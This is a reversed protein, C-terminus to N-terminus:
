YTPPALEDGHRTGNDHSGTGTNVHQCQGGSAYATWLSVEFSCFFNSNPACRPVPPAPLHPSVFSTSRILRAGQAYMDDRCTFLAQTLPEFPPRLSQVLQMHLLELSNSNSFIPLLDASTALLQHASIGDQAPVSSRWVNFRDRTARHMQRDKMKIDIPGTLTQSQGSSPAPPPPKLPM